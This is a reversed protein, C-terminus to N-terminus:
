PLKEVVLKTDTYASISAAVLASSIFAIIYFPLIIIKCLMM